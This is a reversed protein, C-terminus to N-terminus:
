AAVDCRLAARRCQQRKRRCPSASQKSVAVMSWALSQISHVPEALMCHTEVQVGEPKRQRRQTASMALGHQGIAHM